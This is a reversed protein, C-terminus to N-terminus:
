FKTQLWSIVISKMGAGVHSTYSTLAKKKKESSSISGDQATRDGCLKTLSLPPQLWSIERPWLVLSNWDPDGEVVSVHHLIKKGKM